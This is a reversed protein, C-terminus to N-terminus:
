PLLLTSEIILKVRVKVYKNGQSKVSGYITLPITENPVCSM